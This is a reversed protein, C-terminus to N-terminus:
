EQFRSARRLPRKDLMTALAHAHIELGRYFDDVGPGRHVDNDGPYAPGILLIAGRLSRQKAKTLDGSALRQLPLTFFSNPPGVYNICFTGLGNSDTRVGTIARVARGDLPSRGRARLALVASFSPLLRKGDHLFVS